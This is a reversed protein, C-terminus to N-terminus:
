VFNYSLMLSVSFEAVSNANVSPTNCVKINHANCCDMDIYSSYGTGMFSILKLNTFEALVDAKIVGSGFLIVEYQSCDFDAVGDILTEDVTFGNDLFLKEEESSFFAKGILMIKKM